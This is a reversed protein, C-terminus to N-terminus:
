YLAMEFRRRYRATLPHQSGFLNFMAISARRPLEKVADKDIQVAEVLMVIAAEFDRNDIAERATRLRNEVPVEPDGEFTMLEALIRVTDASGHLLHGLKIEEVLSVAEQPEELVIQHALILKGMLEEPHEQVFIRLDARANEQEEPQQMRERIANLREKTETPIFEDLWKKLTGEPLAGVFESVKKGKFFLQVHPIASVGYEHALPGHHMTNVKMLEWKGEDATELKELVPGLFLCPGCTPSWFDVLVPVEHSRELVETEFNNALDKM